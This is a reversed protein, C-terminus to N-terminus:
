IKDCMIEWLAKLHKETHNQDSSLLAMGEDELYDDINHLYISWESIEGLGDGPIICIHFKSIKKLEKIYFEIGKYKDNALIETKREEQYKMEKFTKM